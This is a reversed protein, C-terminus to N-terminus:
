TTGAVLFYIRVAARGGNWVPVSGAQPAPGSRIQWATLTKSPTELGAALGEVLFPVEKEGGDGRGGRFRGVKSREIPKVAERPHFGRGFIHM